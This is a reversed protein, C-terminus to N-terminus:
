NSYALATVWAAARAGASGDSMPSDYAARSAATCAEDAGHSNGTVLGAWDVGTFQAPNDIQLGPVADWFRLGHNVDRRYWPANLSVVMRNLHAMEYMLSTNDAILLDAYRRVEDVNAEHVRLNRWIAPLRRCRPHHHGFVTYGAQRLLHVLGGLHEVYHDLATGAEPCVRHANWHFTIVAIPKDNNTVLPYADCVPSGAAIAPRGWRDAVEQRPCIYGVVNDPHESGHYHGESRRHADVYSQGAGHEIYVARRGWAREIDSFSAVLVMDDEPIKRADTLINGRLGAPLHRHVALVHEMYHPLSAIVHIKM